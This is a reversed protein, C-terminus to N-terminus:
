ARKAEAPTPLRGVALEVGESLDLGEYLCFLGLASRAEPSLYVTMRHVWRDPEGEAKGKRLVLGKGKPKPPVRSGRRAPKAPAAQDPEIERPEPAGGGDPPVAGDSRRSTEGEAGVAADAVPVASDGAGVFRDALAPDIAPPKAPLRLTQKPKEPKPM